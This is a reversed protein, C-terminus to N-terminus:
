KKSFAQTGFWFSVVSAWITQTDDDWLQNMATVFEVGTSIAYYFGFLDVFVLLFFLGYTITPRVMARANIVWTSAGKGIEIDHQYLAVREQASTQMAVQETKIEEVHAQALYGAEAMKLEREMQLQAMALEHSQDAKDQFFKLISPLGGTLFSVVTTLLTFM